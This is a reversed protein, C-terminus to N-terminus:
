LLEKVKSEMEGSSESSRARSFFNRLKELLKRKLKSLSSPKSMEARSKAKEKLQQADTEIFDLLDEADFVAEQLMDLWSEVRKNGTQKQEADEIVALVSNLVIKLKGVLEAVNCRKSRGRLYTSVEDSGIRELLFKLSSSLFAGGVLELAM